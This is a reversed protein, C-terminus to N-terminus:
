DAALQARKMQRLYAHMLEADLGHLMLRFGSHLTIVPVMPHRNNVLGVPLPDNLLRSLYIAITEDLQLSNAARWFDHDTLMLSYMPVYSEIATQLDIVNFRGQKGPDMEFEGDTIADFNLREPPELVRGETKLTSNLELLFNYINLDHVLFADEKLDALTRPRLPDTTTIAVGANDAIFRLIETGIHFHRLILYNSDRRVFHKLGWYITRHLARPWAWHKPLVMRVLKVVIISLRAFPRVLPLLYRRSKSNYGRLLARKAPEHLELSQDLYLALWPNPDHPDIRQHEFDLDWNM